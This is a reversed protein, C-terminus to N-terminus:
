TYRYGWLYERFLGDQKVICSKIFNTTSWFVELSDIFHKEWQKRKLNWNQLITYTIVMPLMEVIRFFVSNVKCESTEAAM